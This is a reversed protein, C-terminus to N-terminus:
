APEAPRDKRHPTEARRRFCGTTLAPTVASIIARFAVRSDVTLQTSDDPPSTEDDFKKWEELWRPAKEESEDWARHGTEKTRVDEAATEASPYTDLPVDELFLKFESNRIPRIQWTGLSCQHTYHPRIM